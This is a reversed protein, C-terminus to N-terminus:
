CGNDVAGDCDDDTGNGCVEAAPAGPEVSCQTASGDARCVSMGTRACAGRGVTCVAGLSGGTTISEVFARGASAVAPTCGNSLSPNFSGSLTCSGTPASIKIRGLGGAGGNNAVCLTSLGGAGGVAQVTGSVMLSPAHLHIVGGSGGGGGGSGYATNGGAGGNARVVGTVTMAGM